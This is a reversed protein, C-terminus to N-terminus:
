EIEGRDRCRGTREYERKVGREERTKGTKNVGRRERGRSSEGRRLGVWGCCREDSEVRKKMRLLHREEQERFLLLILLSGRHGRQVMGGDTPLTSPFFGSVCVFVSLDGKMVCVTIDEPQNVDGCHMSPLFTTSLIALILFLYVYRMNFFFTQM